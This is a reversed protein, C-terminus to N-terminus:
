LPFLRFFIFIFFKSLTCPMSPPMLSPMGGFVPSVPCGWPHQEHPHSRMYSPVHRPEVGTLHQQMSPLQPRWMAPRHPEIASCTRPNAELGGGNGHVVTEGGPPSHILHNYPSSSNAPFECFHEVMRNSAPSAQTSFCSACRSRTPPCSTTCTHCGGQYAAAQPNCPEDVVEPFNLPFDFMGEMDLNPTSQSTSPAMPAAFTSHLSDLPTSSPPSSTQSSPSPTPIGTDKRATELMNEIVRQELSSIHARVKRGINMIIIIITRGACFVGSEESHNRQALRNQLRRREIVDSAENATCTTNGDRAQVESSRQTPNQPNAPDGGTSDVM